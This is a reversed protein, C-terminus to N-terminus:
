ACSTRSRCGPPSRRTSAPADGQALAFARDWPICGGAEVEAEELAEATLGKVPYRYLYEIRMQCERKLRLRGPGLQFALPERRRQRICPRSGVLRRGFPVDVHVNFFEGFAGPAEQLGGLGDRDAFEVLPDRGLMQQLRQQIVLFAGGGAQDPGGAAIRM